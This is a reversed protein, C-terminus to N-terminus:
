ADVEGIAAASGDIGRVGARDVVGTPVAAVAVVDADLVAVTDAGAVGVDIRECDAAPLPDVGSLDDRIGSVGAVGESAVQVELHVDPASVRVGDVEHRCAPDPDSGATGIFFGEAAVASGLA